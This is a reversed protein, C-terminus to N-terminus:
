NLFLIVKLKLNIYYRLKILTQNIQNFFESLYIQLYSLEINCYYFSLNDDDKDNFSIISKKTIVQIRQAM